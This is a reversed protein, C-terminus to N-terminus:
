IIVDRKLLQNKVIGLGIYNKEYYINYLGDPLEFSLNVGNLFLELKRNSLYIKQLDKFINEMEIIRYNGTEIEELKYSEDISFMNVKTRNLELMFGVTGLKEAIDECLTRIYTGKSCSVEFEITNNKKDFKVLNINYIRIERKPIDVKEGKRAYEYLKKGKIKISSYIPPIQTQVGLFSNLTNIINEKNINKPISKTEIIEGERDGTSSKEGLKIVARYIKDHEILYKSLKTYSGILIPLVGTALPDLTGAHGCKKVNLIKKIRNVVGQSSIGEPKNVILIGNSM